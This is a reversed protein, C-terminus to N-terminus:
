AYRGVARYWVLPKRHPGLWDASTASSFAATNAVIEAVIKFYEKPPTIFGGVGQIPEAIIGAVRGSTTTKILKKLDQQAACAAIPIRRGLRVAIVTRMTRMSSARCFRRGPKGLPMATIAMALASRGHYSHRLAIIESSGTFCRALTIATENAETGSNTFFSQRL